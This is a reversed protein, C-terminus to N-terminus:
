SKLEYAFVGLNWSWHCAMPKRCHFRNLLLLIIDHFNEINHRFEHKTPGFDSLFYLLFKFAYFEIEWLIESAMQFCRRATVVPNFDDGEFRGDSIIILLPRIVPKSFM